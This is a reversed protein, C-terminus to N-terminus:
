EALRPGDTALSQELYATLRGEILSLPLFFPRELVEIKLKSGTFEYKATIEDKTITGENGTLVIGNAALRKSALAFQEATMPVEIM